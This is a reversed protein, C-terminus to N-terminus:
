ASQLMKRVTRERLLECLNKLALFNQITQTGTVRYETNTM